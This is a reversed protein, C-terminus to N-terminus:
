ARKQIKRIYTSEERHEPIGRRQEERRRGEVKMAGNKTSQQTYGSQLQTNRRARRETSRETYYLTVMETSEKRHERRHEWELGDERHKRRKTCKLGRQLRRERRYM